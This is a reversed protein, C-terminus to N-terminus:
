EKMFKKYYGQEALLDHFKDLVYPDDMKKAVNVAYIVGKARALDLLKKLKKEEELSKIDQAQSQAQMNLSDDSDMNEVEKMLEEKSIAEQGPITEKVDDFEALKEPSPSLEKEIDTEQGHDDIKKEEKKVM